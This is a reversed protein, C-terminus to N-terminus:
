NEFHLKGIQARVAVDSNADTPKKSYYSKIDRELSAGLFASSSLSIPANIGFFRAFESVPLTSTATRAYTEVHFVKNVNHTFM